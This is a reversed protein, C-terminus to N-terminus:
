ETATFLDVTNPYYNTVTNPTVPGKDAICQAPSTDCCVTFPNDFLLKIVYEYKTGAQASTSFLFCGFGAIILAFLLKKTKTM